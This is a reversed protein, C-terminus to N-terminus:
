KMSDKVANYLQESYMNHGIIDFFMNMNQSKVADRALTSSITNNKDRTGSSVLDIDEFVYYGHKYGTKGNYRQLLDGLKQLRDSGAVFSISTFKLNYLHVAAHLITNITKDHVIHAAHTPNMLKIFKIKENYELPNNIEDQTQSLFIRYEGSLSAMKDFVRTHGITPPNMRGFCFTVHNKM